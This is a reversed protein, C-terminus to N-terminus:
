SGGGVVPKFKFAVLGNGNEDTKIEEFVLEMDQGPYLADREPKCGTIMTFIRVGEPLDVYGQVVPPKIGEPATWAVTFVALKGSKSLPNENVKDSGCKHCIVRKPFAVAGCDQCKSGILYDEDQDTEAFHIVGSKFPVRM